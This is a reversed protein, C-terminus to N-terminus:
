FTGLLATPMASFTTAGGISTDTIHPETPIDLREGRSCSGNVAGPAEWDMNTSTSIVHSETPIELREGRSGSGDVAGPAEWDMNTSTSIVLPETPIDLREGRSGGENVAGPAEWDMDTSAASLDASLIEVSSAAANDLKGHFMRFFNDPEPHFATYRTDQPLGNTADLAGAEGSSTSCEGEEREAVDGTSTQPLEGVLGGTSTATVTDVPDIEVLATPQAELPTSAGGSAVASEQNVISSDTPQLQSDAPPAQGADVIMTADSESM